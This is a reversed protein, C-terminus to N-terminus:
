KFWAPDVIGLYERFGAVKGNKITFFIANCGHYPADMDAVNGNSDFQFAIEDSSDFRKVRSFTLHNPKETRGDILKHLADYAAAGHLVGQKELPHSYIVFDERASMLALFDDYIGDHEGRQWAQFARDATDQASTDATM